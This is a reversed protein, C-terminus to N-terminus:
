SDGGLPKLRTLQSPSRVSFVVVYMLMPIFLLTFHALGLMSMDAKLTYSIKSVAGIYLLDQFFELWPYVGPETPEKMGPKQFGPTLASPSPDEDEPQQLYEDLNNEKIFGSKDAGAQLFFSTKSKKKIETRGIDTQSSQIDQDAVEVEDEESSEDATLALPSKIQMEIENKSKTTPSSEPTGTLPKPPLKHQTIYKIELQCESLVELAELVKTQPLESRALHEALEEIQQALVRQHAISSPASPYNLGM